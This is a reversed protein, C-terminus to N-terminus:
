QEGPAVSGRSIQLDEPLEDHLFFGRLLKEIERNVVFPSITM